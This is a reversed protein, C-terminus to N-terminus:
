SKDNTIGDKTNCFVYMLKAAEARKANGQPAFSGDPMGNMLGGGVVTVVYDLAWPSIKSYDAFAGSNVGKQPIPYSIYRSYNCLMVTMQERTINADPAFTNADMGAVIGNEFGWNVYNYYWEGPPVDKFTVPQSKSIDLDEVCKALMALFQARTIPSDPMFM